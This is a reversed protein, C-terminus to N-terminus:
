AAITDHRTFVELETEGNPTPPPVLAFRDCAMSRGIWNRQM